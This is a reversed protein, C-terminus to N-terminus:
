KQPAPVFSGSAVTRGGESVTFAIQRDPRDSDIRIVLRADPGVPQLFKVSALRYRQVFDDATRVEIARIVEDLLVVGPLIPRGPFHGAFAPHEPSVHLETERIM